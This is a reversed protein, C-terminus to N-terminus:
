NKKKKIILNMNMNNKNINTKTDMIIVKKIIKIKMINTIEM